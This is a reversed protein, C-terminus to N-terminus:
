SAIRRQSGMADRVKLVPKKGLRALYAGDLEKSSEHGDLELPSSPQFSKMELNAMARSFLSIASVSFIPWKSYYLGSSYHRFLLVVFPVFSYESIPM